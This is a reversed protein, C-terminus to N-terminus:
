RRRITRCRPGPPPQHHQGRHAVAAAPAFALPRSCAIRAAPVLYRLDFDAVLPPVVPDDGRVGVSAAWRGGGSADDGGPQRAPDGSYCGRPVRLAPLGGADAFPGSRATGAGGWQAAGGGTSAQDGAVHRRRPHAHDRPVWSTTADSFQYRRDVIGTDLQGTGPLSLAFDHGVAAAYGGPQAAIARLAFDLALANLHAGLVARQADAAAASAGDWIYLSSTIAGHGRGAAEASM